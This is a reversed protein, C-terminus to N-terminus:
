AFMKLFKTAGILSYGCVSNSQRVVRSVFFVGTPAGQPGSGRVIIILIKTPGFTHVWRGVKLVTPGALELFLGGHPGPPGRPGPGKIFMFQKKSPCLRV